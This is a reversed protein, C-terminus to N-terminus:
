SRRCSRRRGSDETPRCRIWRDGKATATAVPGAPDRHATLADVAALEVAARAAYIDAVDPGTVDAVVIGRNMQYRVLGESELTRAAERLTSRSVGLETQVCDLNGYQGVIRCDPM